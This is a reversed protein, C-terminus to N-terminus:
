SRLDELLSAVTHPGLETEEQYQDHTIALRAPGKEFRAVADNDLKWNLYHVSATTHDRTLQAEHDKDLGAPIVAVSHGDGLRLEVSREVGVLKPLWERLEPESTLELFMTASLEGPEPILPNYADLEAQIGEDTIIKEVRAMEQIQFRMTERNEFVLTIKPGVHVRRIRKLAMVRDRFTDRDREYERLDSIDSLSLKRTTM